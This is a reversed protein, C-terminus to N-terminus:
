ASKISCCIVIRNSVWLYRTRYYSLYPLCSQDSMLHRVVLSSYPLAVMPILNSVYLCCLTSANLGPAQLVFVLFPHSVSSRLMRQLSPPVSTSSLIVGFPPLSTPICSAEVSLPVLLPIRGLSAEPNMVMSTM